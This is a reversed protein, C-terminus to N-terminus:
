RIINSFESILLKKFIHLRNEVYIIIYSSFETKSRGKCDPHRKSRKRAKSCQSTVGTILIQLNSFIIEEFIKGGM